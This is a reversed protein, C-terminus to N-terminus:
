GITERRFYSLAYNTLNPNFYKQLLVIEHLFESKIHTIKILFRFLLNIVYDLM